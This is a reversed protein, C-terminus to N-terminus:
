RARLAPLGGKDSRCLGGNEEEKRPSVGTMVSGIALESPRGHAKNKQREGLGSIVRPKLKVKGVSLLSFM